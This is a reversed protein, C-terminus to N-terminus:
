PERIFPTKACAVKLKHRMLKAEAVICTMKRPFRRLKVKLGYRMPKAEAVSCNRTGKEKILGELAGYPAEEEIIKLNCGPKFVYGLAENWNM